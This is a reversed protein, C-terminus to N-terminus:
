YTVYLAAICMEDGTGEGFHITEEAGRSDYTCGIRFHGGGPPDLVIPEEYFFFQQWAFDYDPVDVLCRSDGGRDYDVRLTRGYRHMHPYVAHIKMPTTWAPLPLAATQLWSEEGPPIEVSADFTGTIYAEAEVTDALAVDITTSDPVGGGFYHVQMVLSHGGLLRLGTGAPYETAGTGPTWVLLSRGGGTGAAGYCPYGPGAADADLQAAAAEEADSDVSFLVVHHVISPQGPHVEFATLFRDGAFGPDIVFCRYDDSVAENPTYAEDPRLTLDVRQLHPLEAPAPIPAPEGEPAGADAWAVFTAVDDDALRRSDRYTNCSGDDGVHWPPMIDEAVAAAIVPALAAAEEYTDFAFPAIGAAGHCGRCHQALLPAVDAHFTPADAPAGTDGGGEDDGAETADDDDPTAAPADHCAVALLLAIPFTRRPM